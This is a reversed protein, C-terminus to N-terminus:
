KANYYNKAVFEWDIFHKDFLANLYAPRANRHDIYYAHEWVDVVFLPVDDSALACGANSTNVIALEKAPTLVLWTWGSGFNGAAQAVFAERFKEFSGWKEEIKTLLEGMPKEAGNPTLCMWYFTHNWTQAANNFVAPAVGDSALVIEELGMAAFPTGKILNNLNTIYTQHHKGYHYDFTEASIVAGFADKAYPLRPLEFTM